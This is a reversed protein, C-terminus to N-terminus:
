GGAGFGAAGGDGDGGCALPAAMGGASALASNDGDGDGDGDNSHLVIRDFGCEGACYGRIGGPYGPRAVGGWKGVPRRISYNVEM